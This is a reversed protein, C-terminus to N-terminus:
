HIRGITRARERLLAAEEVREQHDYLDALDDLCRAVEPHEPGFQREAIHLSRNLLTAAETEGDSHANWLAVAHNLLPNILAPDEASYVTEFLGLSLAFVPVADEWRGQRSQTIALLHLSGALELPIPASRKESVAIAREAISEADAFREQTLYLTGLGHFVATLNSPDPDPRAEEVALARQYLKEANDLNGLHQHLSALAFLRVGLGSKDTQTEAETITLARELLPLAESHRAQAAYVEGLNDLGDAVSIHDPGFAAERTSVARKLYGEAKDFGGRRYHLTGLAHLTRELHPGDTGQPEALSLAMMLHNEIEHEDEATSASEMHEGWGEPEPVLRTSTFIGSNQAQLMEQEPVSEQIAQARADLAAAESERGRSKLLHALNGLVLPLFADTPGVAHERIAIARKYLREAEDFKETFAYIQALNAVIPGVDPGDPGDAAEALRLSRLLLKEALRPDYGSYLLGMGRNELRMARFLKVAKTHWIGVGAVIVIGVFALLWWYLPISGLSSM